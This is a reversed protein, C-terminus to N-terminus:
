KLHMALKQLMIEFIYFPLKAGWYHDALPISYYAINNNTVKQSCCTSM